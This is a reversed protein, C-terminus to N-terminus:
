ATMGATQERGDIILTAPPPETIEQDPSNNSSDAQIVPNDDPQASGDKTMEPTCAASLLILLLGLLISPQRRLM